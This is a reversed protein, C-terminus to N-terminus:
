HPAGTPAEPSSSPRRLSAPLKVIGLKELGRVYGDDYDAFSTIPAVDHHHGQLSRSAHAMNFISVITSIIAASGLAAPIILHTM